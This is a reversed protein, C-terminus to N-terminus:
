SYHSNIQSPLLTTPQPFTSPSGEPGGAPATCFAPPAGPPLDPPNQARSSYAAAAGLVGLSTVALFQRRSKSMNRMEESGCQLKQLRRAGMNRRSQKQTWGFAFRGGCFWTTQARATAEKSCM